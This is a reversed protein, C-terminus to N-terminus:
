HPAPGGGFEFPGPDAEYVYLTSNKQDPLFYFRLKGDVINVDMPNQNIQVGLKSTLNMPVEMLPVMTELDVIAVGGISTGFITSVGSCLMVGRGGLMAPHGLFKCDQYDAWYSPNRVTNLPTTFAPYPAPSDNLNWTSANRSGWNLMVLDNTQTDHVVGGEHDDFHAVATTNLTTPEIKVLTATSNPRYQAITAWIFEGDYDIGGNHYELAGVQSLTADAIRTGAGDFVM